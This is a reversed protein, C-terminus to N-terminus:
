SWAALPHPGAVVPPAAPAAAPAAKIVNVIRFGRVSILTQWVSEAAPTTSVYIFSCGNLGACEDLTYIRKPVLKVGAGLTVPEINRDARASTGFIACRKVGARRPSPVEGLRFRFEFDKLTDGLFM